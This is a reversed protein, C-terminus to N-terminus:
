VLLVSFAFFFMRVSSERYGRKGSSKTLSLINGNVKGGVGVKCCLTIIYISYWLTHGRTPIPVGGVGRGCALKGEGMFWSPVCEGASPPTPSDWNRRSSFFSLV